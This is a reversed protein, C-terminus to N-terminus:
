KKIDHQMENNVNHFLYLNKAGQKQMQYVRKLPKRSNQLFIDTVLIPRFAAHGLALFGLLDNIEADFVHIEFRNTYKYRAM